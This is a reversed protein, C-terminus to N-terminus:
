KETKEAEGPKEGKAAKDADREAKKEESEVKVESVDVPVEEVKEEVPVKVTAIATELDVLIKVGKPVQIDKVYVSANIDVLPLLSVSLRHPLDAPLSEIEIEHMSINLIGGKEKVGIAEGTFELPVKAKIKEDMRVRYFDIHIVEDSLYDKQIDHVLTPYKEKGAVINIITNMGAEKFVKKFDKTNVSIHLNEVGKGYLEAPILGARRSSAVAKGFKERTTVALEMPSIKGVGRFFPLRFARRRKRSRAQTDCWCL